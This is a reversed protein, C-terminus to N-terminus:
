NSNSKEYQKQKQIKLIISNSIPEKILDDKFLHVILGVIAYFGGVIFFGYYSKGMLEGIWLALGINVMIVVLSVVVGIIIKSVLTSILDASKDIARLKILDVSTKAYTEIREILPELLSTKEEM